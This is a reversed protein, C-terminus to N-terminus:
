QGSGVALFRQAPRDESQKIDILSVVLLRDAVLHDSRCAAQPVTAPVSDWSEDRRCDVARAQGDYHAVIDEWEEESAVTFLRLEIKVM